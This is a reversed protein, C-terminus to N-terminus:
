PGKWEGARGEEEEEWPRQPVSHAGGSKMFHYFVNILDRRRPGGFLQWNKGLSKLYSLGSLRDVLYASPTFCYCGTMVYTVGGM